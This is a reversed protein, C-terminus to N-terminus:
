QLTFTLVAKSPSFLIDASQKWFSNPEAQGEEAM